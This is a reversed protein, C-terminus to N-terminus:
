NIEENIQEQIEETYGEIQDYFEKSVSYPIDRNLITVDESLFQAEFSTSETTKTGFKECEDINGVEVKEFRVQLNLVVDDELVESYFDLQVITTEIM